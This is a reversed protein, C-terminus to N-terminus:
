ETIKLILTFHGIVLNLPFFITWPPLEDTKTSIKIKFCTILMKSNLFIHKLLSMIQKLILIEVFVKSELCHGRQVINM